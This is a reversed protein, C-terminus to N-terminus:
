IHGSAGVAAGVDRAPVEEQSGNKRRSIRWRCRSGSVMETVLGEVACSVQTVRIFIYMCPSRPGVSLDEFPKLLQIICKQKNESFQGWQASETMSDRHGDTQRDTQRNTQGRGMCNKNLGRMPGCTVHGSGLGRM